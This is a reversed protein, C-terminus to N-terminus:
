LEGVIERCCVVSGVPRVVIGSYTVKPADKESTYQIIKM